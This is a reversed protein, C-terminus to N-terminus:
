ILIDKEYLLSVAGAAGPPNTRHFRRFSLSSLPSAEGKSYRVNLHLPTESSFSLFFRSTRQFDCATCVGVSPEAAFFFFLPFRLLALVLRAFEATRPTQGNYVPPDAVPPSNVSPPFLKKV